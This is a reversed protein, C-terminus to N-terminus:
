PAIGTSLSGPFRMKIVAQGEEPKSPFVLFQDNRWRLHRLPHAIGHFPAAFIQRIVGLLSSPFTWRLVASGARLESLVDSDCLAGAEEM